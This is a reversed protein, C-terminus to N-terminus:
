NHSCRKVPSFSHCVKPKNKRETQREIYAFVFHQWRIFLLAVFPAAQQNSIHPFLIMHNPKSERKDRYQKQQIAGDIYRTSKTQKHKTPERKHQPKSKALSVITRGHLETSFGKQERGRKWVDFMKM